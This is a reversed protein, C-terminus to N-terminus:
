DADQCTSKQLRLRVQLESLENPALKGVCNRNSCCRTYDKNLVADEAPLQQQQQTELHLRILDRLDGRSHCLEGGRVLDGDGVHHDALAVVGPM